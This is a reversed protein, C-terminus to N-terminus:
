PRHAAGTQPAVPRGEWAAYLIAEIDGADFPRPNAYRNRTAIEAARPIDTRDLGLDALSLPAGCTKAFDWLGRGVSGGFLEAVADLRDTGVANFGATHPLLIAHTEAHPLGFSGGLVHALKHHLSMTIYGLVTSCLWAGYLIRARAERDTPAEVVRPLGSKFARMAETAMLDTIPNADPAYLGEIGHAIANLASTVTLKAPLGLTLDVDYIVVEPRISPDRRTVKEGADTEGLIDTMESGAYTTPIAIQDAGTRTAIAKGLGITSGGGVAVLCDAGSQDFAAIAKETVALPTHMEAGSFLGASQQGLLGSLANAEGTQQPTCLFFARRHGLRAIEEGLRARTGSGFLVRSTIGPFVFDRM